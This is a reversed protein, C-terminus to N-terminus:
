EVRIRTATSSCISFTGGESIWEEMRQTVLSELATGIGFRGNCPLRQARRFATVFKCANYSLSRTSALSDKIL